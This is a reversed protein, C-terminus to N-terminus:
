KQGSHEIRTSLSPNCHEMEIVCIEARSTAIPHLLCDQM